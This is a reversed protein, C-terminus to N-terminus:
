PNVSTGWCSREASREHIMRKALALNGQPPAFSKVGALARSFNEGLLKAQMFFEFLLTFLLYGCSGMNRAREFMDIKMDLVIM